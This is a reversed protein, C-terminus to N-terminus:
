VTVLINDILRTKGIYAAILLVIADGKKFTEPEALNEALASSAYDIKIDGIQRLSNIMIANIIKRSTEGNIIAEKAKNLSHCLITAKERNDPSLYSNRSSKALGDSERVIPAVIIKVGFNLDRNMRKIVLSQQYDKQGFIAYHPKVALFLKAVVSAVGQFHTPRFKGEFKETVDGVAIYTSYDSYYMELAEPAFIYDIGKAECLKSDKELDRPYADYDENPAFQTPNVFISAIAIDAYDKAKEFLSGHGEHLYGMTPALAITKGEARLRDSISQMESISKIIKM